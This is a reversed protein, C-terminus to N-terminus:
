AVGCTKDLAGALALGEFARWKRRRRESAQLCAVGAKAWSLAASMIQRARKRRRAYIRAINAILSASAIEIILWQAAKM